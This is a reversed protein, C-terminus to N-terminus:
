GGVKTKPVTETEVVRIWSAPKLSAFYEAAIKTDEESVLKAVAIMLNVPLSAPESSKRAGSRFDAVQQAIYTASLGALSSNEPRGLGNPLHCYGCAFVAPKTGHSVVEPMPPHGDPHWDPASFLDRIQTLTFAKSSGPVHRVAGDDPVPQVGPPNVAFAWPPPAKDAGSVTGILCAFMLIAIVNKM